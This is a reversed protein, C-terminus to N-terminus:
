DDRLSGDLLTFLDGTDCGDTVPMNDLGLQVTPASSDFVDRTMTLWDPRTGPSDGLTTM